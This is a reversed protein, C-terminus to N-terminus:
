EEKRRFDPCHVSLSCLTKKGITICDGKSTLYEVADGPIANKCSECYVGECQEGHEIKYIRERLTENEAQYKKCEEQLKEYKRIITELRKKANFM